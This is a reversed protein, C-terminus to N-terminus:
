GVYLCTLSVEIKCTTQDTLIGITYTGTGGGVPCSIARVDSISIDHSAGPTFPEPPNTFLGSYQFGMTVGDSDTTSWVHCGTLNGTGTNKITWTFPGPQAIPTLNSLATVGTLSCSYTLPTPPNSTQAHAPLVGVRIVPKLWSGPLMTSLAAAGTGAALTKILRRRAMGRADINQTAEPTVSKNLRM